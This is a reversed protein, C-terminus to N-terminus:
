ATRRWEFREGEQLLVHVLEANLKHGSRHAVFNGILDCGSLALDGVMDLVKHRVCEDAFRLENDIPGHDDFVLLDRLTARGGLGQALLWDAESKLMFTRCPALEARFTEPMVHVQYTQRGIGNGLGYDLRYRASLGSGPTAPRAEIWSDNNGVRITRGVFLQNRWANQVVTGARDLCEVFPQSSGDCGPLEPQDIWVECNDIQLGYLAALLHEVMEVQAGGAVLTTRRPVEIRHAVSVPIRVRRILDGRVFVIGSHEPAPRFEVRVDKGSWYGFGELAAPEGITRQKRPTQVVPSRGYALYPAPLCNPNM